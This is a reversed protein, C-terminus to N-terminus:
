KACVRSKSKKNKGLDTV